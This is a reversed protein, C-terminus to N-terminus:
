PNLLNYKLDNIFSKIVVINAIRIDFVFSLRIM